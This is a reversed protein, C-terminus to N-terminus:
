YDGWGKLRNPNIEPPWGAHKVRALKRKHLERYGEQLTCHKPNPTKPTQPAGLLCGAFYMAWPKPDLNADKSSGADRM